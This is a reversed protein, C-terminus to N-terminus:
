TKICDNKHKHTQAYTLFYNILVVAKNRLSPLHSLFSFLKSPSPTQSSSTSLQFNEDSTKVTSILKSNLDNRAKEGRINKQPFSLHSAHKSRTQFHNLSASPHSSKLALSDFTSMFHKANRLFVLFKLM